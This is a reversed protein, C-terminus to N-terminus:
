VFFATTSIIAKNGM